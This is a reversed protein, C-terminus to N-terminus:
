YIGMKSWCWKTKMQHVSQLPLKAQTITYLVVTYLLATHLMFYLLAYLLGTHSFRAPKYM